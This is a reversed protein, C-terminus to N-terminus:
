ISLESLKCYKNMIFYLKVLLNIRNERVLLDEDMIMVSDFFNGIIKNFSSLVNFYDQWNYIQAFQELKFSSENILQYLEREIDHQFLDQNINTIIKNNIKKLINEIRKNASFLAQNDKNKSFKDLVILLNPLYELYDPNTTIISQVVNHSYKFEGGMVLYNYLRTLIFKYIESIIEENFNYKQFVDYSIKLLDVLNLKYQFLIRVIGLAMRRLAYQDKDGTPILGIGWIGVITELKDALALVIALENSPLNDGSFKPYYYEELAIAIDQDLNNCIAYYKGMIGQLDPFEGVMETMLDAKMLYAAQDVKLSDLNLKEGIYSAIKKIRSIRELQSGLKDHYIVHGLKIVFNELPTKKDVDYFFKADALRASLVRENGAVIKTYDIAQINTVFLFKNSLNNQKDFLAFYKQNKAMSLILCEPPLDLYISNFEGVLVHPYEVIATVEDLLADNIGLSLNLSKSNLSLGEAIIKRRENFDSIVYGTQQIKKYYENANSIEIKDNALVRHGYTYNNPILGFIKTGNLDLVKSGFLIMLNHVPRIFYYDNNSWRMNKGIILTKLAKNIVDGLIDNLLRGVVVKKAYFYGDNIVLQEIEDVGVSKMFGLLANSTKGDVISNKTSPGKKLIENDNEQFIVGQIVVGFRRPSCIVNYQSLNNTFSKLEDVVSKAFAKAINNYLNIPPLEETLFEILLSNFQQIM